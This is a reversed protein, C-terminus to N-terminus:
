ILEFFLQPASVLCFLLLLTGFLTAYTMIFNVDATGELIVNSWASLASYTHETTAKWMWTPSSATDSRNALLWCTSLANVDSPAIAVYDITGGVHLYEEVYTYLSVLFSTSQEDNFGAAAAEYAVKCAEMDHLCRAACKIHNATLEIECNRGGFSIDSCVCVYSLFTIPSEIIDYCTGNNCSVADHICARHLKGFFAYGRGTADTGQEVNNEKVYTLGSDVSLDASFPALTPNIRTSNRYLTPFVIQMTTRTASAVTLAYSASAVSDSAGDSLYVAGELDFTRLLNRAHLPSADFGKGRLTLNSVNTGSTLTQLTYGTQNLTPDVAVITAVTEESSTLSSSLSANARVTVSARLAGADQAGLRWFEFRIQTRTAGSWVNNPDISATVDPDAFAIENLVQSKKDFGRGKVTIYQTDHNLNSTTPTLTPSVGVVKAVTQCCCDCDTLDNAECDEAPWVEKPNGNPSFSYAKSENALAGVVDYAYRYRYVSLHLAGENQPALTDMYACIETQTSYLVRAVPRDIGSNASCKSDISVLDVNVNSGATANSAYVKTLDPWLGCRARSTDNVSYSPLDFDRYNWYATDCSQTCDATLNALDSSTVNNCTANSSTIRENTVLTDATAEFDEGRILLCTKDSNLTANSANTSPNGKGIEVVFQVSDHTAYTNTANSANVVTDNQYGSVALVYEVQGANEVTVFPGLRMVLRSRTSEIAFRNFTDTTGSCGSAAEPLGCWGFGSDAGPYSYARVYNHADSGDSSAVFGTGYIPFNLTDVGPQVDASDLTRQKTVDITPKAGAVTGVSVNTAYYGDLASHSCAAGSKFGVSATMNGAHRADLKDFSLIVVSRSACHVYAKVDEDLRAADFVAAHRSGARTCSSNLCDSCPGTNDFGFGSITLKTTDSSLVEFGKSDLSPAVPSLTAVLASQSASLAEGNDRQSVSVTAQVLSTNVTAPVGSMPSIKHISLMLHTRTSGVATASMARECTSGSVFQIANASPDYPDFGVGEISMHLASTNIFQETRTDDLSVEGAVVTAVQKKNALNSVSAATGAVALAIASKLDAGINSPGLKDFSVVLYGDSGAVIDSTDRWGSTVNAAPEDTDISGDSRSAEFHVLNNSPTLFDFANGWITLTSSSSRLSVNTVETVDPVSAVYQGLRTTESWSTVKTGGDYRVRVRGWLQDAPSADIESCHLVDYLCVVRVYTASTPTCSGTFSKETGGSNKLILDVENNTANDADFSRGDITVFFDTCTVDNALTTLVPPYPIVNAVATSTAVCTSKCDPRCTVSMSRPTLCTGSSNSTHGRGTEQVDACGVYKKGLEMFGNVFDCKFDSASSFAACTITTLIGHNCTAVSASATFGENCIPVCSEGSAITSACTGSGGNTPATFACQCGECKTCTANSVFTGNDCRTIGGLSFNQFCAFACSGGSAITTNCTGVTANGPIDESEAAVCDALCTGESVLAGQSCASAESLTFGSNCAYNCSSGSALDVTCAGLSGNTPASFLGSTCDQDCTPVSGLTGSSCALVASATFGANCAVSCSSGSALTGSCNGIAGNTPAAISVVCDQECQGNTVVGDVCTTNSSLSFGADCSFACSDGSIMSSPCQGMDGNAPASISTCNAFCALAATDWNGTGDCTASSSPTYGSECAFTCTEFADTGGCASANAAINAVAPNGDCENTCEDGWCYSDVITVTTNLTGFAAASLKTFSLVITSYTAGHVTVEAFPNSLSTAVNATRDFGLGRVTLKTVNSSLDDTNTTIVPNSAKVTFPVYPANRVSTVTRTYNDALWGFDLTNEVSVDIKVDGSQFSDQNFVSLSSFSLTLRTRTAAVVTAAIFPLTGSPSEDTEYTAGDGYQSFVLANRSSLTATCTVGCTSSEVCGIGSVRDSCGSGSGCCAKDFTYTGLPAFGFGSLVVTQENTKHVVQHEVFEPGASELSLVTTWDSRTAIGEVAIQAEVEIPNGGNNGSMYSLRHPAFVIQETTSTEVYGSIPIWSERLDGEIESGTTANIKYSDVWSTALTAGLQKPRFLVSNRSAVSGFNSGTITIRDVNTKVTVNNPIIGPKGQCTAVGGIESLREAGLVELAAFITSQIQFSVKQASDDFWWSRLTINITASSLYNDNTTHEVVAKCPCLTNHESTWSDNSAGFYCTILTSNSACTAEQTANKTGNIYRDHFQLFRKMRALSATTNAGGLISCCESPYIEQFLHVIVRNSSNSVSLAGIGGQGYIALSYQSGGVSDLVEELAVELPQDVNVALKPTAPELTFLKTRTPSKYQVGTSSTVIAGADVTATEGVGNLEVESLHCCSAGSSEVKIRYMHYYDRMEVPISLPLGWEFCEGDSVYWDASTFQALEVWDGNMKKGEFSWNGSPTNASSASETVVRLTRAEFVTYETTLVCSAGSSLACLDFELTWNGTPFTANACEFTTSLDGDGLFRTFNEFANTVSCAVSSTLGLSFPDYFASSANGKLIEYMIGGNLASMENIGLVVWTNEEDANIATSTITPPATYGPEWEMTVNSACSQEVFNPITAIVPMSVAASWATAANELIFANASPNPDFNGGAITIRDSDTYLFPHASTSSAYTPTTTTNGDIFGSITPDQPIVWAVIQYPTWQCNPYYTQTANDLNDTWNTGETDYAFSMLLPGADATATSVYLSLEDSTANTIREVRPFFNDRNAVAAKSPFLFYRSLESDRCGAADACTPPCCNSTGCAACVINTITRNQNTFNITTWNSLKDDTPFFLNPIWKGDDNRYRSRYTDARLTLRAGTSNTFLGCFDARIHPRRDTCAANTSLMRHTDMALTEEPRAHLYRRLLERKRSSSFDVTSECETGMQYENNNSTARGRIYTYTPIPDEEEDDLLDDLLNEVM